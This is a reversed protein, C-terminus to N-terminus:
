ERKIFRNFRYMLIILKKKLIHIKFLCIPNFIELKQRIKRTALLNIIKLYFKM